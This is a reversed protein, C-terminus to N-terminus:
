KRMGRLFRAEVSRAHATLGEYEALTVITKRLRRIGERSLAQVYIAKLFDSVTLSATFSADGATPLIHNSGVAYDTAPVPTYPGLSISGASRVKGLLRLPKTVLLELHEPAFRNVFDLAEQDGEVILIAGNKALAEDIIPAQREGEKIKSIEDKTEQAIKESTTVLVAVADPDHEAQSVMDAAILRPDATEDAYILIESPGALFDVGVQGYVLGKAASVYINGPGFIKDVRPITETGYAMAGIAQVGGVRYVEDAGALDLAVLVAPAIEGDASPPTCVVTRGVGAIKAPIVAMLATSPYSARGGPVYVGVRDIPKFIQKVWVGGRNKLVRDKPLQRRHVEAISKAAKNLAVIVGKPVAEYAKAIEWCTVKLRGRPLDVGDYLKMYKLVAEDGNGRIDNLINQVSAKVAELSRKNRGIIKEVAIPNLDKLRSPGIM